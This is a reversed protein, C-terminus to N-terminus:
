DRLDDLASWATWGAWQRPDNGKAKLAKMFDTTASPVAWVDSSTSRDELERLLAFFDAETTPETWAPWRNAIVWRAGCTTLAEPLSSWRGAFHGQGSSGYCVAALVTVGSAFQHAGLLEETPYSKGGVALTLPGAIGDQSGHAGLIFLSAEQQLAASFEDPTTVRCITAGLRRRARGLAKSWGEGPSFCNVIVTRKTTPLDSAEATHGLRTAAIARLDPWAQLFLGSVAVHVALGDVEILLREPSGQAAAM